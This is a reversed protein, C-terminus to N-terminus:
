KRVERTAMAPPRPASSGCKMALLDNFANIESDLVALNREGDVCRAAAQRLRVSEYFSAAYARCTKEIDAANVPQSRLTAWRYRRETYYSLTTKLGSRYDVEVAARAVFSDRKPLKLLRPGLEGTGVRLGTHALRRDAIERAIDLQQGTQFHCAPDPLLVKVRRIGPVPV